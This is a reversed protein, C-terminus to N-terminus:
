AVSWGKETAIVIEDATLKAKNTSGLTLTHTGSTYTKLANIISLISEKTLKPSGSFSINAGISGEVTINELSSCGGFALEFNTTTPTVILKEISKLQSCSNFMAYCTTASSADIVGVETISTSSNMFESMSTVKSLDLTVGCEELRQKLNFQKAGDAWFRFMSAAQLPQMDYKPKFAEYWGRGAFADTYNTRNGNDQYEDWFKDYGAQYVKPMNEAITTLKNELSM